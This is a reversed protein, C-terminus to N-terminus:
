CQAQAERIMDLHHAIAPEATRALRQVRPSGAKESRHLLKLTAVHGEEQHRLWARDFEAGSKTAAAKLHEQQQATPLVPPIVGEEIAAPVSDAEIGAHDDVLVRGTKRVLPCEGRAQALLGGAIEALNGHGTTTFFDVDQAPADTGHPQAAGAPQATALPAGVALAGALCAGTVMHAAKM